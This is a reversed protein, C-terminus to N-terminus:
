LENVKTIKKESRAKIINKAINSAETEEGLIKIILKLHKESLNNIAEQASINNLGMAMDLKNKSKFSFGRNLNNLQISSLGLDFIIIDVKKKKLVKDLETRLKKIDFSIDPVKYFDSFHQENM